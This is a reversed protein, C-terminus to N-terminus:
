ENCEESKCRVYLGTIAINCINLDPENDIIYLFTNPKKKIMWIPQLRLFKFQILWGFHPSNTLPKPKERERERKMIIIKEKKRGDCVSHVFLSCVFQTCITWLQMGITDLRSLRSKYSFYSEFSLYKKTCQIVTITNARVLLSLHM